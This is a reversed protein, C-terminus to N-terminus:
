LGVIFLLLLLRFLSATWAVSILLCLPLFHFYDTIFIRFSSELHSRLLFLLLFTIFYNFNFIMNYFLYHFEEESLRTWFMNIFLRTYAPLTESCSIACRFASPQLDVWVLVADDAVIRKAETISVTRSNKCQFSWKCFTTCSVTDCETLALASLLNPMIDQTRQHSWQRQDCLCKCFMVGHHPCCRSAVRKNKLVSPPVTHCSCWHLRFCSQHSATWNKGRRDHSIGDSRWSRRPRHSHGSLLCWYSISAPWAWDRYNTKRTIAAFCEHPRCDSSHSARQKYHREVGTNVKSNTCGWHHHQSPQKRETPSGLLM